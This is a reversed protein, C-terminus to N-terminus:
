FEKVLRKICSTDLGIISNLVIYTTAWGYTELLDSVDKTKYFTPIYVFKSHTKKALELANKLGTKDNDYLFVVEKFRAKLDSIIVDPIKHGEGQSSVAILDYKKLVLVDKASKTIIIRDGNEPLSEYGYLDYSTANSIFKFKKNQLPRYIKYRDFTKIAYTIDEHKDGVKFLKGNLWYHSIPYINGELLEAETIGYKITWYAKDFENFPRRKIDIVAGSREQTKASERKTFDQIINKNLVLDNFVKKLAQKYTTGTLISVFKICDGAEGTAFDKFLLKKDELSTFIGFSPNEDKRLPSNMAKGVVFTKGIYHRYIDYESVHKIINDFTPEELKLTDYM